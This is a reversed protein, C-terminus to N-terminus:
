STRGLANLVRALLAERSWHSELARLEDRINSAAEFNQACVQQEKERELVRAQKRWSDTLYCVVDELAQALGSQQKLMGIENMQRVLHDVLRDNVQTHYGVLGAAIKQRAEALTLQGDRVQQLLDLVNV